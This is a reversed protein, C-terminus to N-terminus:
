TKASQQKQRNRAQNASQFVPWRILTGLGGLFGAIPSLHHTIDFDVM